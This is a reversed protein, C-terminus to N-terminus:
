RPVGFNFQQRLQHLQNLRQDNEGSASPVSPGPSLPQMPVPLKQWPAIWYVPNQQTPTTQPQARQQAQKQWELLNNITSQQRNQNMQNIDLNQYSFLTQPNVNSM